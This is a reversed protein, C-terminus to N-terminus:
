ANEKEQLWKIYKGIWGGVYEPLHWDGIQRAKVCKACYEGNEDYGENAIDDMWGWDCQAGCLFCEGREDDDGWEICCKPHSCEIDIDKALDSGCITAVTDAGECIEIYIHPSNYDDPDDSNHHENDKRYVDLGYKEIENKM